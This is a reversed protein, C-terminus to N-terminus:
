AMGVDSMPVSGVIWFIDLFHAEHIFSHAESSLFAKPHYPCTSWTWIKWTLKPTQPKGPPESPLSDAQLKPSAPARLETGPDPLDGPSSFPFGSWYGQRSFGMLLPAQLIGHASSGPPSCDMPNCLTPCLQAILVSPHGLQFILGSYFFQTTITQSFAVPHSLLLDLLAQSSPSLPALLTKARAM